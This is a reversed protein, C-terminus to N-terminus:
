PRTRARIPDLILHIPYEGGRGVRASIALTEDAQWAALAKAASRSRPDTNDAADALVESFQRQRAEADGTWGADAARMAELLIWSSQLPATESGRMVRGLDSRLAADLLRARGEEGNMYAVAIEMVRARMLLGDGSSNGTDDGVLERSGALAWRNTESAQELKGDLLLAETLLNAVGLASTLWLRNEPDQALLAKLSEYGIAARAAAGRVDGEFMQLQAIAGQSVGLGIQAPAHRPDDVLMASYIALERGRAERASDLQGVEVLSDAWWANAQALMDQRDLSDPERVALREALLVLKRFEPEASRADGRALFLIGLNSAAYAQEQIWKLDDPGTAAMRDALEAYRRFKAEATAWDKGAWATQGVWFVSQAHDFMRDPNKPDRALLEATTREAERFAKLAGEGDGRLDRVEGVLHLARARRGLADPDLGSLDQAAYYALARQGVSDMVELRGVPELKERLDTLMYEILGDAQARQREAERRGQVALVTLVAMVAVLVLSAGSVLAARRQRRAAERQVLADLPLGTLGAVLKLLALKKGDGGPRIDAAIPEAPDDSISGDPLVHFKLAPPFCAGGGADGPDGDAILALVRATGDGRKKGHLLKFQRVEENVWKSQAAAPSCVVILFMSKKLAAKLEASLDGAAPLEDRDRFFKGLRAPVPGLPTLEGVLKSPIRYGELAGHLWEVVRRDAHSYSIFARYGSDAQGGNSHRGVLSGM